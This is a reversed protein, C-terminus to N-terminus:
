KEKRCKFSNDRKYGVKCTKNCRNTTPNLEKGPPCKKSSKSKKMTTPKPQKRCQFKANRIDGPKCEKVCRKTSPNYEKGDPCKLVVSKIFETQEKPTMHMDGNIITDIKNTVNIDVPNGEVLLHKDFKMNYKELLGHKLLLSEYNSMFETPTARLFLNQHVGTLFLSRMDNYCETDLFRQSRHLVYLLAICTGYIDITNVCKQLFDNYKNPELSLVMQYYDNLHQKLEKKYEAMNDNKSICTFFYVHNKQVHSLVQSFHKQKSKLDKTVSMYRNKNLMECETPFSWHLTAFGYRSNNSANIIKTKTTMLGFDILNARGTDQNYVINQPKLDHHVKGKASLISLGYIIRSIDMWFHEVIRRNATNIPFEKVKKGYKELDLGGYKILLLSYDNMNDHSFRRSPCLMTASRNEINTDAKCIQPKGLHFLEKKDASEILKFETMEDKADKDLMLKTAISNNTSQKENKCKMPPKHVCGYTGEGVFAPKNM